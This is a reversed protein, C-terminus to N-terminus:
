CGDDILESGFRQWYAECHYLGQLVVTKNEQIFEWSVREYRYVLDEQWVPSFMDITEPLQEPEFRGLREM